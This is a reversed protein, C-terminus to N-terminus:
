RDLPGEDRRPKRLRRGDRERWMGDSRYAPSTSKDACRWRWCVERVNPADVGARSLVGCSTVGTLGREGSPRGRDRFHDPDPHSSVAKVSAQHYVSADAGCDNLLEHTVIRLCHALMVGWM